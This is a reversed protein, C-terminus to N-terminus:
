AAPETGQFSTPTGPVTNEPTPLIGQTYPLNWTEISWLLNQTGAELTFGSLKPHSAAFNMYSYLPVAPLNEAYLALTKQYGELFDRTYPLAFSAKACATDYDNNSYGSLNTGQWDNEEDPISATTFWDCRPVLSESGMAFQALDFQRGFLTGDPGSAYLNEPALYETEVGIGCKSLSSVLIESVQRRQLSTTTLYTLSLETGNPIGSINLATRPTSPDADLDEWGIGDLLDNGHNPDYPYLKVQGEYLPHANPIYTDPVTAFNYLVEEVVRQRDLCAAIAKRTNRDSLIPARDSGLNIGDDYEARNIGFHLSELSITESHYFTIQANAALSQLLALHNDLPINPDILDCKGDLLAAIADTPTPTFIFNLVDFHPLGEAARHYLPNKILSISEGPTWVDIVYAGWGLPYRAAVDADVLEDATFASWIHYPLPQWFNDQYSNDRYGPIGRWTVTLPDVAEYAETRELLYAHSPSNSSIALDYAYISDDSTLDTGDAWRLNPLLSFEVVMAEMQLNMDDKYTIACSPDTCGAPYVRSGQILEIKEGETNVVWDGEEVTVSVFKASGDELSPLDQLIVPVYSYNIQDIPGDYIAQLVSQAAPNPEGYLYLTNPEQGLCINLAREPEPTPTAEQVTAPEPGVPSPTITPTEDSNLFPINCATLALALLITWIFIKFASSSM